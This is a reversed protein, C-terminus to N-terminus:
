FELIGTVERVAQLQDVHMRITAFTSNRKRQWDPAVHKNVLVTSIKHGDSTESKSLGLLRTSRRVKKSFLESGDVDKLILDLQYILRSERWNARLGEALAQAYIDKVIYSTAVTPRPYDDSVDIQSYGRNWHPKYQDRYRSREERTHAVAENTQELVDQLNTLFAPDWILNFPIIITASDGEVAQVEVEAFEVAIAKTILTERLDAYLAAGSKRSEIQTFAKGFLSEGEVERSYLKMEVLTNELEKIVVIASLKMNYSGDQPGESLIEFTEVYGRSHTLIKDNILEYNEVVTESKLFLGIAQEVAIRLGQRLAADRDIGIGTAVVTKVQNELNPASEQCFLGTTPSLLILACLLHMNPRSM